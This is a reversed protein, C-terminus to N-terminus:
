RRRHACSREIRRAIPGRASRSRREKMDSGDKHRGLRFAGSAVMPGPTAEAAAVSRAGVSRSRRCSEVWRAIRRRQTARTGLAAAEKRQADGGDDRRRRRARWNMAIGIDQEDDWSSPRLPAESTRRVVDEVGWSGLDLTSSTRWRRRRPRLAQSRLWRRCGPQRGTVLNNIGKMAHGASRASHFVRAWAGLRGLVAVDGEARRGYSSRCGRRRPRGRCRADILRRAHAPPGGDRPSGRSSSVYLPPARAARRWDTPGRVAAFVERECMTIRCRAAPSAASDGRPPPAATERSTPAVAARRSCHLRHGARGPPSWRRAGVGLRSASARLIPTTM